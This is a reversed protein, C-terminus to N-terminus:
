AFFKMQHRIEPCVARGIITQESRLTLVIPLKTKDPDVHAVMASIRRQEHRAIISLQGQIRKDDVSVIGGADSRRHWQYVWQTGDSKAREAFYSGTNARFGVDAGVVPQGQEDILRIPFQRVRFSGPAEARAGVPITMLAVFVVIRLKMLPSRLAPRSLPCGNRRGPM